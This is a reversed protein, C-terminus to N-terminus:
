SGPMGPLIGLKVKYGTLERVVEITGEPSFIAWQTHPTHCPHRYPWYIALAAGIDFVTGAHVVSASPPPTTM